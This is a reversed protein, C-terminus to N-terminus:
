SYAEKKASNLFAQRFPKLIETTLPFADDAVFVYLVNKFNETVDDPPPIHLNKEVLKEYLRTNQLVSGDSVRGNTGFDVLLFRYNADVIALLVMGKYNFYYSGSNRPPIIDIHKGDMAGICHPYNSIEKWKETSNSFKIYKQLVKYLAVCTDPIIQGLSQPSIRTSYKLCEYPQGTALFRLTATLREHPCIATRMQTDKKKMLPSVLSLLENYVSENM